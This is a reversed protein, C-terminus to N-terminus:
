IFRCLILLNLSRIQFSIRKLHGAEEQSDQNAALYRKGQCKNGQHIRILNIVMLRRCSVSDWILLHKLPQMSINLETM